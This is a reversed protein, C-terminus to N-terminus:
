HNGSQMLLAWIWFTMLTFISGRGFSNIRNEIKNYYEYM